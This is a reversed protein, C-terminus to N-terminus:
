SEAEEALALWTDEAESLAAQVAALEGGLRRMEVHDELGILMDTIKDRERQLRVM